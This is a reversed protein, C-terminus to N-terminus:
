LSKQENKLKIHLKRHCTRCLLVFKDLLNYDSHHKEISKNSFCISCVGSVEGKQQLWRTKNRAKIKLPNNIRYKKAFENLYGKHNRFWIKTIERTCDKCAGSPQKGERQVYFMKLDLLKKCRSCVKKGDKIAYPIWKGNLRPKGLKDIEVKM